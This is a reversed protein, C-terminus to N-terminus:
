DETSCSLDSSGADSNDAFLEESGKGLDCSQSEPEKSIMWKRAHHPTKEKGQQEYSQLRLCVITCSVYYM